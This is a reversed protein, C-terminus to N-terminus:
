KEKIKEKFKEGYVYKVVQEAPKNQPTFRNDKRGGTIAHNPFWKWLFGGAFWSELWFEFYIAKLANSQGILNTESESKSDSAWPESGTYNVSRYGYETFLVPIKYKEHALKLEKKHQIWGNRLESVSPTKSKSVPFYADVGIFDLQNWFSVRKYEDWNAAYTLKGKYVHKIEKILGKWFEPRNVTFQELEVGICLIDASIETAIQAYNLIYTRYSAELKLWDAESNMKIFGTFKGGLVWIQPKLMFKMNTREFEKAYQKIGEKSEGFWQHKSNYVINPNNLDRMMAFPIFTVYNANVNVIPQVNYKGIPKDSSVFSIGNIKSTQSFGIINILVFILAIYKMLNTRLKNLVVMLTSVVM